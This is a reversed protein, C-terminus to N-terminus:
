LWEIEKLSINFSEDGDEMQQLRVLVYNLEPAFWAYTVRDENDTIRQMKITKFQGKPTSITPQEVVKFEYDRIHGDRNIGQYSYSDQLPAAKLDLELQLQYSLQDLVRYGLDTNTVTPKNDKDLVQKAQHDFQYHYDRDKGTGERKYRYWDVKVQNNDIWLQSTESREDSLFLFRAQSSYNFLYRQNDLQILQRSGNGYDSGRRSLIYDAKYLIPANNVSESGLAQKQALSNAFLQSSALLLFIGVPVKFRSILM